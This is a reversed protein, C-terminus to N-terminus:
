RRNGAVVKLDTMSYMVEVCWERLKVYASAISFLQELLKPDNQGGGSFFARAWTFTTVSVNSPSGNDKM